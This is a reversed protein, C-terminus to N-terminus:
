GIRQKPQKECDVSLRADDITHNFDLAREDPPNQIVNAGTASRCGHRQPMDDDPLILSAQIVAPSVLAHM